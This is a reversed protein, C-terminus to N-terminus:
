LLLSTVNPLSLGKLFNGRLDLNELLTLSQVYTETFHNFENDALNLTRLNVLYEFTESSFFKLKNKNMSLSKLSAMHKFDDKVIYEIQNGDLNLHEVSKAIIPVIRLYNWSLDLTELRYYRSLFDKNLEFIRQNRLTLSKLNMFNGFVNEKFQLNGNTINLSKLATTHAFLVSDVKSVHMLTVNHVLIDELNHLWKLSNSKQHDSVTCSAMILSKLPLHNTTWYSTM